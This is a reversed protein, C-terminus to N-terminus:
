QSEACYREFIMAAYACLEDIEQLHQVAGVRYVVLERGVQQWGIPADCSALMDLFDPTFLEYMPISPIDSSQTVIFRESFAVSEFEIELGKVRVASSLRDQRPECATAVYREGTAFPLEFRVIMCAAGFNVYEVGSATFDGVSQDVEHELTAVQADANIIKGMYSTRITSWAGYRVLPVRYQGYRPDCEAFGRTTSWRTWLASTAMHRLRGWWAAAILPPGLFALLAYAHILLGHMRLMEWALGWSIVAYPVFGLWLWWLRRSDARLRNRVRRWFSDGSTGLDTADPFLAWGTVLRVSAYPQEIFESTSGDPM